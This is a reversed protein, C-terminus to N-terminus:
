FLFNWLAGIVPVLVTPATLLVLGVVVLAAIVQARINPRGTRDRLQTLM